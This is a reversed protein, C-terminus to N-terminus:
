LPPKHQGADSENDLTQMVCGDSENDTGLMKQDYIMKVRNM